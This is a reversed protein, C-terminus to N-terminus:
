EHMLNMLNYKCLDYLYSRALWLEYSVVCFRWYFGKQVFM